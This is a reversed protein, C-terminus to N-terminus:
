YSSFDFEPKFSAPGYNNSPISLPAPLQRSPALMQPAIHYVPTESTFLTRTLQGSTPAYRSEFCSDATTPHLPQLPVGSVSGRNQQGQRASEEPYSKTYPTNVRDIRGTRRYLQIITKATSYNLNLIDAAQRITLNEDDVLRLLTRRTDSLVIRYKKRRKPISHKKQSIQEAQYDPSPSSNATYACPSALHSMSPDITTSNQEKYIM